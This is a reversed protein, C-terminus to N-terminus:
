RVAAGCEAGEAFTAAAGASRIVEEPFGGSETETAAELGINHPGLTPCGRLHAKWLVAGRPRACREKPTAGLAARWITM